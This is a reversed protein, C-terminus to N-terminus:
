SDGVGESDKWSLNNCDEVAWQANLPTISQV